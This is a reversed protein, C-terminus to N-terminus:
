QHSNVANRSPDSEREQKPEITKYGPVQLTNIDDANNPEDYDQKAQHKLNLLM